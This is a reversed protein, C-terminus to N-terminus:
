YFPVLTHKVHVMEGFLDQRRSGVGQKKSEDALHRGRELGRCKEVLTSSDNIAGELCEQYRVSVRINTIRTAWHGERSVCLAPPKRM